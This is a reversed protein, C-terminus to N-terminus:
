SSYGNYRMCDCSWPLFWGECECCWEAHKQFHIDREVEKELKKPSLIFCYEAIRRFIDEECKAMSQALEDGMSVATGKSYRSRALLLPLLKPNYKHVLDGQRKRAVDEIQRPPMETTSETAADGQAELEVQTKRWCLWIQTRVMQNHLNQASIECVAEFLKRECAERVCDDVTVSDPTGRGYCDDDSDDDYYIEVDSIRDKFRKHRLVFLVMEENDTKIAADLVKVPANSDSGGSFDSSTDTEALSLLHSLLAFSGSKAALVIPGDKCDNCQNWRVQNGGRKSNWRRLCDIVEPHSGAECALLLVNCRDPGRTGLSAGGKQMLSDILQVQSQLPSESAVVAMLPTYGRADKSNALRPTSSIQNKVGVVDGNQILAHFNSVQDPALPPARARNPRRPM